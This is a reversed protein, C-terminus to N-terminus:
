FHGLKNSAKFLACKGHKANKTLSTCYTLFSESRRSSVLSNRFEITIPKAETACYLM